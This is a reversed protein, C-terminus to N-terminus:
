KQIKLPSWRLGGNRTTVFFSVTQGPSISVAKVQDSGRYVIVSRIPLNGTGHLRYIQSFKPYRHLLHTDIVTPMRLALTPGDAKVDTVLCANDHRHHTDVCPTQFMTSQVEQIPAAATLLLLITISM